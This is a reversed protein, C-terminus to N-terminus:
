NAEVIAEIDPVMSMIIKGTKTQIPFRECIQKFVKKRREKDEGDKKKIMILLNPHAESLMKLFDYYDNDLTDFYGMVAVWKRHDKM